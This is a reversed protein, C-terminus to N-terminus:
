LIDRVQDDAVIFNVLHQLFVNPTFAPRPRDGGDGGGGGGGGKSESQFKKPLQPTWKNVSCTELYLALHINALHARLTTNSTSTKFEFNAM